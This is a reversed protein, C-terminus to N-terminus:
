GKIEVKGHKLLAQLSEEAAQELKKEDTLARRVALNQNKILDRAERRERREDEKTKLVTKRMEQARQHCDDAKERLEIYEKHKKNAEVSLAAITKFAETVQEHLKQAEDSLQVVLKHEEDAQMFLDDIERNIEAVDKTAKVNEDEVKELELLEKYKVRMEDILDNEDAIPMSETQQKMVMKDLEKRLRKLDDGIGVTVKGRMSRKADILDRAEQHLKNRVLKHARMQKVFEDRKARIGRMNEAVDKRQQHLLDREQRVLNAQENFEDRKDLITRLKVEARELETPTKKRVM